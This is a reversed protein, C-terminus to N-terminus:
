EHSDPPARIQVTAIARARVASQARGYSSQVAYLLTPHIRYSLAIADLGIHRDEDTTRKSLHPTDPLTAVSGYPEDPMTLTILGSSPALLMVAVTAFTWFSTSLAQRVRKM